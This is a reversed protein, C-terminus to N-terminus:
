TVPAVFETTWRLPPVNTAEPREKYIVSTVHKTEDTTVWRCNTAVIQRQPFEVTEVYENDHFHGNRNHRSDRRHAYPLADCYTETRVFWWM